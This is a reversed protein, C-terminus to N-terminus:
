SEYRYHLTQPEKGKSYLTIEAGDTVNGAIRCDYDAEQLIRIARDADTSPTIIMMGNGMNWLRYAKDETVKGMDQMNLMMKHPPFVNDLRAGLGNLKLVRAMNDFIGGGTIHAIGNVQANNNLLQVVGPTYILSPTLLLRGWTNKDDFSATHWEAGFRDKMIRRILSFGNSRFGRSRLTIIADGKAAGSGDVPQRNEPLIGIATAGWNFHMDTGYGVIREGLEAIEGGTLTIRTFDAADHLGQMLKDVITDDLFDVDLINSLNVTQLGNAALDDAVMAVLDFGLTDYIGTREALEIKTGIGDSSIGIKVGNFDMINAFGGDADIIPNGSGPPRNAFTKKAWDYAIQSCKNGLDIDVGSQKNVM